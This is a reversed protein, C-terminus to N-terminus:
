GIAQQLLCLFKRRAGIAIVREFINALQPLSQLSQFIPMAPGCAMFPDM